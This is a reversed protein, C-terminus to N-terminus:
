QEMHESSGARDQKGIGCPQEAAFLPMGILGANRSPKLMLRNLVDQTRLLEIPKRKPNRRRHQNRARLCFVQDFRHKFLYRMITGYLYGINASSRASNGNRQSMVQGQSRYIRQIEGRRSKLDGFGVGGSEPNSALHLTNKGVQQVRKWGVLPM